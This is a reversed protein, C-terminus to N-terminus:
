FRELTALVRGIISEPSLVVGSHISCKKMTSICVAYKVLTHGFLGEAIIVSQIAKSARCTLSTDISPMSMDTNDILSLM